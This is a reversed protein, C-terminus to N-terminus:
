KCHFRCFAENVFTLVGNPKFRCIMDTQDEVVARFRKESESVAREAQRREAAAAALLLNTIAVIGIYSGILMLSNKEANTVFPGTGQLLSYMAMMSVLATGTSAGRP